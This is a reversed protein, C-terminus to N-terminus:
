RSSRDDAARMRAALYLLWSVSATIGGAGAVLVVSDYGNEIKRSLGGYPGDVFVRLSIDTNARAYASLKRTFGEHPRVL